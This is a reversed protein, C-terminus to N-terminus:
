VIGGMKVPCQLGVKKMTKKHKKLIKREGEINVKILNGLYSVEM